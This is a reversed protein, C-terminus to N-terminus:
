VDIKRGGLKEKSNVFQGFDILSDWYIYAPKNKSGPGSAAPLRAEQSARM